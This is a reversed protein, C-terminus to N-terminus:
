VDHVEVAPHKNSELQVIIDADQLMRSTHSILIITMRGKLEKLTEFIVRESEGDLASTPEDLVLIKPPVYLARALALRQAEGGSLKGKVELEVNDILLYSLGVLELVESFRHSDFPRGFCVNDALTGHILSTDQPVYAISGPNNAEFMMPPIGGILVNGDTQNQLGIIVDVLTSKGAGSRGQIALFKGEALDLNLGTFLSRDSERYRFSIGRLEIEYRVDKAESAITTPKPLKQIQAMVQAEAGIRRLTSFYGQIPLLSSFLRFVGVLFITVIATTIGLEPVGFSLYALSAVCLMIALEVMYRPLGVAVQYKANAVAMASRSTTFEKEHFVINRSTFIYRYNDLAEMVVSQSTMNEQHSVSALRASKITAAYHLFGMIAAFYCVLALFLIPNTLTLYASVALIVSMEAVIGFVALLSESTAARVSSTVGHVLEPRSWKALDGSQAWLLRTFLSNAVSIELKALYLATVKNIFVSILAKALFFALASVSLFILPQWSVYAGIQALLSGTLSDRAVETGTAISVVLGTIVLGAADLGGLSVRALALAALKIKVNSTWSERWLGRYIQFWSM